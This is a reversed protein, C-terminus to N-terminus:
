KRLVTDFGLSDLADYPKKLRIKKDNSKQEKLRVKHNNLGTNM